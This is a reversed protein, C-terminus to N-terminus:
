TNFFLDKEQGEQILLHMKWIGVKSIYADQGVTKGEHKFCKDRVLRLCLVYNMEANGQM